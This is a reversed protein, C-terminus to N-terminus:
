LRIRIVSGSVFLEVRDLFEFLTILSSSFLAIWPQRRHCLACKLIRLEKQSTQQQACYGQGPRPRDWFDNCHEYSAKAWSQGRNFPLLSQSSHHHGTYILANFRNCWWGWQVAPLRQSPCWKQTILDLISRLVGNKQEEVGSVLSALFFVREENRSQYEWKSPFIMLVAEDSTCRPAPQIAVFLVAKTHSRGTEIEKISSAMEMGMMTWGSERVKFRQRVVFWKIISGSKPWQRRSSKTTTNKNAGFTSRFYRDGIIVMGDMWRDLM